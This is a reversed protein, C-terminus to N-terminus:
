EVLGETTVEQSDNSLVLDLTLLPELHIGLLLSSKDSELKFTYCAMWEKLISFLSFVIIM